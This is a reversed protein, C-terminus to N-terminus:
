VEVNVEIYFIKGYLAFILSGVDAYNNLMGFM